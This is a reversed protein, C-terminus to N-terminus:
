EALELIVPAHDSPQKGKREDRDVRVDLVRSLLPGTVDLHDIRLGDNKVFGLMRYDWWSYIGADQNRLRLSDHLGYSRLDALAGRVEDNALVGDRWNQPSKADRDEPAVNFDGALVLPMAPSFNRTLLARLRRMWALKYPYKPSEIDGGNPFYASFVRVGRFVGSILRAQPDDVDDQLGRQVDQAPERSLLAVGNYTKQGHVAAHYGAARVADWPFADDEVKLEQLCLVDPAHRALVGLLRDHRARISNVNWTIIRM